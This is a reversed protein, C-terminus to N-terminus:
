STPQRSEENKQEDEALIENVTEKRAPVNMAAYGDLSNNSNAEEPLSGARHIKPKPDQVLNEPKEHEAQDPM